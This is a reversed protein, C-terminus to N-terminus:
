KKRFISSMGGGGGSLSSSSKQIFIKSMRQRMDEVGQGVNATANALSLPSLVSASLGASRQVLKNPTQRNRAEIECILSRVTEKQQPLVNDVLNELHALGPLVVALICRNSLSCYVLTSYAEVLANAIEVARARSQNIAVTITIAMLQGAVVEENFHQPCDPAIKALTSVLPLALAAPIDDSSERAITELTLRGKDRVERAGCETVLRGLAPIAAARVTRYFGTYRVINRAINIIIIIIIYSKCTPIM